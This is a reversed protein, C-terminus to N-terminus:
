LRASKGRACQAFGWPYHHAGAEPPLARACRCYPSLVRPQARWKVVTDPRHEGRARAALFAVLVIGMTKTVAASGTPCSSTAPMARGPPFTM